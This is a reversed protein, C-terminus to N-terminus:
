DILHEKGESDIAYVHTNGMSGEYYNAHFEKINGMNLEKFTVPDSESTPDNETMYVNGNETIVILNNGGTCCYSRIYLEKVEETDFVKTENLYLVKDEGISVVYKAGTQSNLEKTTVPKLKWYIDEINIIDKEKKSEKIYYTVDTYSDALKLGFSHLLEESIARSSLEKDSTCETFM